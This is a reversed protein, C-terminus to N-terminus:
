AAKCNWSGLTSILDASSSCYKYLIWYHRKREKNSKAGGGCVTFFFAENLFTLSDTKRRFPTKTAQRAATLSNLSQSMSEAPAVMFLQATHASYLGPHTIRITQAMTDREGPREHLVRHVPTRPVCLFGVGNNLYSPGWHRVLFM